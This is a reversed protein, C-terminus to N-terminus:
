ENQGTATFTITVTRQIDFIEFCNPCTLTFSKPLLGIPSEIVEDDQEFLDDEHYEHQCYPCQFYIM